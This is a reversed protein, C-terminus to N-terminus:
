KSHAGAVPQPLNQLILSQDGFEFARQKGIRSGSVGGMWASVQKPILRSLSLM